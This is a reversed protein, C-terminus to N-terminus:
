RAMRFTKWFVPTASTTSSTISAPTSNGSCSSLSAQSLRDVTLYGEATLDRLADSLRNWEKEVDLPPYDSPSAIMVLAALPPKVALPRPPDPLELFRVIPTERSLGLFKNRTRDYLFEWPIDCLEPADTLRVRIRLGKEARRAEGLRAALADAVPGAVVADFLKGGMNKATQTEPSELRRVTGRAHGMRLLFNELELDTFPLTFESQAPGDAANLVRAVYRGDGRREIDLDFDAYDM